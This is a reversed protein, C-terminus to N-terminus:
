NLYYKSGSGTTVVTGAKAGKKVPSTTIETGARFGKSNSVKGVISGDANQRWQSLVPVNAPPPAKTGFISLTGSRNPVAIDPKKKEPVSKTVPSSGFFSFASAKQVPEAKKVPATEVKPKSFITFTKQAPKASEKAAGNISITGTRAPVKVDKTQAPKSAFLGISGSSSPVKVAVKPKEKPTSAPSGFFSFPQSKPPAPAPVSATKKIAPKPPSSFVSFSPSAMVEKKLQVPKNKAVSPSPFFSFPTSPAPTAKKPAVVVSKKVPSSAPPAFFSFASTAPAATKKVQVPKQVAPSPKPRDLTSPIAFTWAKKKPAVVKNRQAYLKKQQEEWARAKERAQQAAEAEVKARQATRAAESAAAAQAAAITAKEAEAKAKTAEALLAKERAAREEEIAKRRVAEQQAKEAVEAARKARAEAARREAEIREEELAKMRAEREAREEETEPAKEDIAQFGADLSKAAIEMVKEMNNTATEVLEDRDVSIEVSKAASSASKMSSEFSEKASQAAKAATALIKEIGSLTKPTASTEMAGNTAASSVKPSPAGGSQMAEYEEKSFDAYQNLTMEKASEKAYQELMLFNNSFTPFRSEDPEKNYQKCWKLYSDRIRAERAINESDLEGGDSAIGELSDLAIELEELSELGLMEMLKQVIATLQTLVM